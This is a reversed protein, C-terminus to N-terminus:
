QAVLRNNLDQVAAELLYNFDIPEYANKSAWVEEESTTWPGIVMGEYYITVVLYKVLSDDTKTIFHIECIRGNILRKEIEM